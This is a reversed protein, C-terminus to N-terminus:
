SGEPASRCFAELSVAMHRTKVVIQNDNLLSMSAHMMGDQRSERCADCLLDEQTIPAPCPRDPLVDCQCTALPQIM